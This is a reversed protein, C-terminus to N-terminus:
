NHNLKGGYEKAKEELKTKLIMDFTISGTGTVYVNQGHVFGELFPYRPNSSFNTSTTIRLFSKAADENDFSCTFTPKSIM